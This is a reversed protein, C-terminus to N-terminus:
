TLVPIRGSDANHEGAGNSVTRGRNSVTRGSKSSDPQKKSRLVLYYPKGQM